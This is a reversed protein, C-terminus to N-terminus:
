YLGLFGSRMMLVTLIKVVEMDVDLGIKHLAQKNSMLWRMDEKSYIFKDGIKLLFLHSAYQMQSSNIKHYLAMTKQCKLLTIGEIVTSMHKVRSM